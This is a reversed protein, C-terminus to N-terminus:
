PLITKSVEMMGFASMPTPGRRHKGADIGPKSLMWVCIAHKGRCHVELVAKGGLWELGLAIDAVYVFAPMAVVSAAFGGRLLEDM